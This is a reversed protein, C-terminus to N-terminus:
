SNQKVLVIRSRRKFNSKPRILLSFFLAIERPATMLFSDVM